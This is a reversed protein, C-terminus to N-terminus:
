FSASDTGPAAAPASQCPCEGKSQETAQQQVETLVALEDELVSARRGLRKSRSATVRQMQEVIARKIRDELDTYAIRALPRSGKWEARHKLV